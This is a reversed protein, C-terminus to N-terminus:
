SNGWDYVKGNDGVAISHAEGVSLGLFNGKSTERLKKLYYFFTIAWPSQYTDEPDIVPDVDLIYSYIKLKKTSFAKLDPVYSLNSHQKSFRTYRLSPKISKVFNANHIYKM